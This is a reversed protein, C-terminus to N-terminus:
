NVGNQNITIGHDDGDISWTVQGTDATVINAGSNFSFHMTAQVSTSRKLM